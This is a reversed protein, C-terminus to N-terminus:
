CTDGKKLIWCNAPLAEGTWNEPAAQTIKTSTQDLRLDFDGVGEDAKGTAIITYTTATLDDCAYDFHKANGAGVACGFGVYTRNDAFFQEAKVRLDSLNTTAETLKGRVIYDNYAPLAISALIGVIVVVIM